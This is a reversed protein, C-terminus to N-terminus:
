ALIVDFNPKLDSDSRPKLTALFKKKKSKERVAVNRELNFIAVRVSFLRKTKKKQQVQQSLLLKKFFSQRKM